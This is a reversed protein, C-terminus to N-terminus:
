DASGHRTRRSVLRLRDFHLGLLGYLAAWFIGNFLYDVFITDVLSGDERRELALLTAVLNGPLGHLAEGIVGLVAVLQFPMPLVILSFLGHSVPFAAIGCAAGVVARVRSPARLRAYALAGLPLIAAWMLSAIKGVHTVLLLMAGVGILGLALLELIGAAKATKKM